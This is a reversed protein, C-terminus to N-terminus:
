RRDGHRTAFALALEPPFARLVALVALYLLSAFV